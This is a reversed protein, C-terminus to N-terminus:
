AARKGGQQNFIQALKSYSQSYIYNSQTSQEYKDLPLNSPMPKLNDLNRYKLLKNGKPMFFLSSAIEAFGEDLWANKYPDNSVLGYFWQHAIEHVIIQKIIDENYNYDYISAATVIGPYEMGNGDIIIDLQKYPYTGITKQFYVFSNAAIKIYEALNEDTGNMTFVRINVNDVEKQMIQPNKLLAIFVDKVNNIRFLSKNKSPFIDNSSTTVVTYEKPIDLNIKFNCFATHYSEGNFSYDQKNWDNRYTPVMPYWQALHYNSGNKTFRFGNKPLTFTYNMKFTINEKHPLREKLPISLKDKILTYVAEKNDIQISKIKVESPSDLSPSNKNVFMNPIFYLTLNDWSENSINEINISVNATFLGDTDMVLDINYNSQSGPSITKPTYNSKSLTVKAENSTLKKEKNFFTCLIIVVSILSLMSVFLKYKKM